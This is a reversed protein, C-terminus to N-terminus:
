RLLLCFTFCVFFVFFMGSQTNIAIRWKKWKIKVSSLMNNECKNATHKKKTGRRCKHFSEGTLLIRQVSRPFFCFFPSVVAFLHVYLSVFLCVFFPFLFLCALEVKNCKNQKKKRSQTWKKNAKNESNNSQTQKKSKSKNHMNMQNQKARKGSQECLLCIQHNTM